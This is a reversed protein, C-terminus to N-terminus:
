VPCEYRKLKSCVGDDKLFIKKLFKTEKSNQM